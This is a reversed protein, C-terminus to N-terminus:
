LYYLTFVTHNLGSSPYARDFRIRPIKSVREVIPSDPDPDIVTITYANTQRYISNDASANHINARSYRIAPYKMRVTEPPQFYVQDSGLISELLDQLKLRNNM